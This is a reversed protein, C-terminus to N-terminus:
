TRAGWVSVSNYQEPPVLAPHASTGQGGGESVEAQSDNGKSGSM